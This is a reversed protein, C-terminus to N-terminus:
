SYFLESHGFSTVKILSPKLMVSIVIYYYSFKKECNNQNTMFKLKLNIYKKSLGTHFNVVMYCYNKNKRFKLQLKFKFDIM